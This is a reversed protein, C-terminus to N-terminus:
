LAGLAVDIAFDIEFDDEPDDELVDGPNRAGANKDANKKKKM